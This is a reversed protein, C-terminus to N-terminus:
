PNDKNLLYRDTVERAIPGAVAGGSGGNEVIVAVAIKPDDAAVIQTVSIEGDDPAADTCGVDEFVDVLDAIVITSELGLEGVLRRMRTLQARSVLIYDPPNLSLLHLLEQENMKTDLPFLTNATYFTAMSLMDWELRNKCFTAVVKREIHRACFWRITAKIYGLYKDFGLSAYTEGTDFRIAARGGYAPLQHSVIDAVSDISNFAKFVPKQYQTNFNFM